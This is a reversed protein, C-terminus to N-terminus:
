VKIVARVQSRSVGTGYAIKRRRASDRSSPKRARDPVLCVSTVPAGSSSIRTSTSAAWSVANPRVLASTDLAMRRVSALTEAPWNRPSRLSKSMSTSPCSSARSCTRRVVTCVPGSPWTTRTPSTAFTLLVTASGGESKARMSPRGPTATATRM